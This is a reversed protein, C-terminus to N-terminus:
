IMLRWITGDFFVIHPGVTVTAATVGDAKYISKTGLNNVNLSCGVTCPVDAFLTLTMGRSYAVPSKISLTCSYAVTGNSSPCFKDLGAEANDVSLVVAQNVATGQSTAVLGFGATVNGPPGQPGMPGVAGNKGPPGAPGAPGAPVPSCTLVFAATISTFAQGAPCTKATNIIQTSCVMAGALLFLIARKMSLYIIGM